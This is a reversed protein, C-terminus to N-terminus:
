TPKDVNERESWIKIREKTPTDPDYLKEETKKKELDEQTVFMLDKIIETIERKKDLGWTKREEKTPKRYQYGLKKAFKANQPFSSLRPDKEIVTVTRMDWTHKSDFAWSIVFSVPILATYFVFAVFFWPKVESYGITAYLIYSVLALVGFGSLLLSARESM